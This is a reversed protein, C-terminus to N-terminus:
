VLSTPWPRGCPSAQQQTEEFTLKGKSEMQSFVTAIQELPVGTAAAVNGIDNLYQPIQQLDVGAAVLRKTAATADDLAFPTTTAWQNLETFTETGLGGTLANLQAVQTQVDAAAEGLDWAAAAAASGAVALSGVGVAAGAAGSGLLKVGARSATLRGILGGGGGEAFGGVLETLAVKMAVLETADAHVAVDVVADTRDLTRISRQLQTINRQAERTDATPDMRLQERMVNRLREVEVRASEIAQDNLSVTHQGSLDNLAAETKVADAATTQLSAQLPSLGRVAQSADAKVRLLTDITGM